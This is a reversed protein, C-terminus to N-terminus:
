SCIQINNNIMKNPKLNLSSASTHKVSRVFLFSWCGFWLYLCSSVPRRSDFHPLFCISHTAAQKRTSHNCKLLTEKELCLRKNQQEGQWLHPWSKLGSNIKEVVTNSWVQDFCPGCRWFLQLTDFRWIRKWRCMWDVKMGRFSCQYIKISWNFM